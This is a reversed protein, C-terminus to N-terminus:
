VLSIVMNTLQLNINGNARINNLTTTMIELNKAVSLYDVENSHIFTHLTDILNELFEVAKEREKIKEMQALMENKTMKLFKESDENTSKGIQKNTFKIVECRSVITPLVKRISPATLVFYLNEQPEELNKLFANLAEIGTEHINNCVILTPEILTLRVFNNLSRVDEIKILPYEMIRADFKKALKESEGKLQESNNGILLFAQM